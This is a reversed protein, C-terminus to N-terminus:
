YMTIEYVIILNLILIFIIIFLSKIHRLQLYSRPSKFSYKNNLILHKQTVKNAM